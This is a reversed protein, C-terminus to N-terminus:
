ILKVIIKAPAQEVMTTGTSNNTTPYNWGFEKANFESDYMYFFGVRRYTDAKETSEVLLGVQQKEWGDTYSVKGGHLAFLTKPEFPMADFVVFPL